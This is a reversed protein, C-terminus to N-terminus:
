VRNYGAPFLRPGGAVILADITDKTVFDAIDHYTVM